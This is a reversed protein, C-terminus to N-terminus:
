KLIPVFYDTFTETYNVEQGIAKNNIITIGQGPEPLYLYFVNPNLPIIGLTITFNSFLWTTEGRRNADPEKGIIASMLKDYPVGEKKFDYSLEMRVGVLNGDIDLVYSDIIIDEWIPPVNRLPIPLYGKEYTKVDETDDLIGKVNSWFDFGNFGMLMNDETLYSILTPRNVMISEISQRIWESKMYNGIILIGAGITALLIIASLIRVFSKNKM